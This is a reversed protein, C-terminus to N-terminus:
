LVSSHNGKVFRGCRDGSEFSLNGLYVFPTGNSLGTIGPGLVTFACMGPHNLPLWDGPFLLLFLKVRLTVGLVTLSTKRVQGSGESKQHSYSCAVHRM